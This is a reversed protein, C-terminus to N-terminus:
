DPLSPLAKWIYIYIHTHTHTYGSVFLDRYALYLCLIMREIKGMQRVDVAAYSRRNM